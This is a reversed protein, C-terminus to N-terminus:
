KCLCVLCVLLGLLLRKISASNKADQWPCSGEQTCVKAPRKSENRYILHSEPGFRKRNVYIAEMSRYCGGCLRLHPSVQLGRGLFLANPILCIAQKINPYSM